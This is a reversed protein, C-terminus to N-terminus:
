RCEVTHALLEQSAVEVLEGEASGAAVRWWRKSVWSPKTVRRGGGRDAVEDIRAGSGNEGSGFVASSM